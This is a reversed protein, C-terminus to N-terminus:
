PGVRTLRVNYMLRNAGSVELGISGEGEGDRLSLDFTHVLPKSLWQTAGRCGAADCTCVGLGGGTCNAGNPDCANAGVLECLRTTQCDVPSSMCSADACCYGNVCSQSPPCQSPTGPPLPARLDVCAPGPPAFCSGAETRVYYASHPRCLFKGPEAEHSTQLACWSDWPEYRGATFKLRRAEWRIDDAQYAFGPLYAPAFTNATPLNPPWPKSPDTPPEPAADKGFVVQGSLTGDGGVAIAVKISDDANLEFNELYGTWMGVAQSSLAQTAVSCANTDQACVGSECCVYGDACPCPNLDSTVEDACSALAGTSLLIMTLTLARSSSKDPRSPKVASM